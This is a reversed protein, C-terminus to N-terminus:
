RPRTARAKMSTTFRQWLVREYQSRWDPNAQKAYHYVSGAGISDTGIRSPPSSEIQRWARHTEYTNYRGGVWRKSFADFLEFGFPDGGTAAYLALGFNKWEKYDFHNPIVSVAFALEDFDRALKETPKRRRRRGNDRDRCLDILWAPADAIPLDNVWRYHGKGPRLSPAGLVMGGSGLVDIGVGLRSTSNRISVGQPYTFYRHVSGSPSRAMLTPPLKGHERELRRLSAAGDVKHGDPTDIELVFFGSRWGTVIGINANPWKRFDRRVVAPNNTCGWPEGNSHEASKCGKKSGDPPAPFIWWGRRVYDLAATAMDSQVPDANRATARKALNRM